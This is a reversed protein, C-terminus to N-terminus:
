PEQARGAQGRNTGGALSDPKEAAMSLVAASLPMLAKASAVGPTGSLTVLAQLKGVEATRESAPAIFEAVVVSLALWLVM